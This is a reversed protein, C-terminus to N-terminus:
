RKRLIIIEAVLLNFTWSVWAIFTYEDIGNIHYFKPLLYALLRLSIASLTLAYSRIMWSEHSKFHKQKAQLLALFTFFIWLMALIIFSLKAQVNGNAYFAMILASPGALFLVDCVYVYGM